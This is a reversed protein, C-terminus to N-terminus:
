NKGKISELSPGVMGKPAQRSGRMGKPTMRRGKDLVDIYPVNNEITFGNSRVNKTWGAKATGTDVPTRQKVETFLTDALRKVESRLHAQLAKNAAAQGIFDIKLM